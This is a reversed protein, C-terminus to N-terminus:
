KLPIKPKLITSIHPLNEAPFWPPFDTRFSFPPISSTSTQLIEFKEIQLWKYNLQFAHLYIGQDIKEEYIPGGCTECENAISKEDKKRRKQGLQEIEMIIEPTLLDTVAISDPTKSDETSDISPAEFQPYKEFLRQYIKREIATKARNVEDEENYYMDNSIPHGLLTLHIRIQHMKGTLPRCLVLSENLEPLYGIKEMYTISATPVHESVNLYGSNSSNVSILPCRYSCSDYKFLGQVRALYSKELNEHLSFVSMMAKSFAKTKAMVIVGLTAKDLRHCPWVPQGLEHAVIELLTNYRFIGSPHTSVGAPKCAVIFDNSNYLIPVGCDMIYPLQTVNAFTSPMIGPQVPIKWSIAPEHVHQLNHIMDHPVLSRNWVELGKIAVPGGAKGNNKTVYISKQDIGNQIVAKTQGLETELVEPATKNAWRLKFPTNHNYFYPVVRRINNTTKYIPPKTLNDLDLKLHPKSLRPITKM